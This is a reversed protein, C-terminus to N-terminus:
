KKRKGEKKHEGMKEHETPKMKEHETSKFGGHIKLKGAKSEMGKKETKHMAM